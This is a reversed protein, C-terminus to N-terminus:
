ECDQEEIREVSNAHYLNGRYIVGDDCCPDLVPTFSKCLNCVGVVGVLEEPTYKHTEFIIGKTDHMKLKM